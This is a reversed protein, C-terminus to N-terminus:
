KAGSLSSNKLSWKGIFNHFAVLSRQHQGWKFASTMILVHSEKIGKDQFFNDLTLAMNRKGQDLDDNLDNINM